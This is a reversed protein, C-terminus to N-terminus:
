GQTQAVTYLRAPKGRSGESLEGTEVLHPLMTRRFTDAVLRQGLVREHLARLESIAFPGPPMLRFPDPRDQHAQVIRDVALEVIQRHDLGLEPLDSVPFLQTEERERIVDRPLVDFHAITVVWGRPDRDPADFSRLQRPRVGAVGAKERAARVATDSIREGRRIFAGPLRWEGFLPRDEDPVRVLLACLGRDEDLTLVATDAALSPREYHAFDKEPEAPRTM